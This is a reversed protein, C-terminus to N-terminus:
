WRSGSLLYHQVYDAVADEITLTKFPRAAQYKSMDACTYNQYNKSLDEPMPVYEINEKKGLAQFVAKALRNWSIPEGAGVNFIGCLDNGLFDCTIHAVDKVYIFDRKQEGDDFHKPDNSAFLKVKGDKQIMDTMHMVMSGMRGKHYENPGFVNFYKLGVVKDLVNQNKMWQDVMHKSYGYINLPSLSDIQEHADVFGNKGDGYTAASSAYIFRHNHQLAYSALRTTFRYNTKLFYDGDTEVTDSCAGLHIFAEIEQEKDQLWDFIDHRSILDVYRKGVLNKWKPSKKFDDVLILNTYGQDNLHRVVGSGIFGAAGTVIILQDDFVKSM